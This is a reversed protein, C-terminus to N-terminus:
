KIIVKVGNNYYTGKTTPKHDLKRGRLDVWHDISIEGTRTNLTGLHISTTGEKEEDDIQVDITEPLDEEISAVAGVKFAVNNTKVCKLYARMPRIKIGAKGKVFEGAKIDGVDRAAYGYLRGLESDGENWQKFEYTGIFNWAGYKDSYEVVSSNTTTNFVPKPGWALNFVVNEVTKSPIVMFPVNAKLNNAYAEHRLHLIWKPPHQENGDWWKTVKIYSFKEFDPMRWGDVDFPLMVTAPVGAEFSRNYIVSDVTIDETISITETSAGDITAIVKGDVTDISIGGYTKAAQAGVFAAMAALLTTKLMKKM